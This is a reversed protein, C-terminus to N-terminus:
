FDKWGEFNEWCMGGDRELERELERGGGRGEREGDEGMFENNKHSKGM